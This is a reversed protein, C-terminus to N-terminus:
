NRYAFGNKSRMERTLDTMIKSKEAGEKIQISFLM